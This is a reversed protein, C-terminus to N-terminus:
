CVCIFTASQMFVTLWAPVNKRINTYIRPILILKDKTDEQLKVLRSTYDLVSDENDASCPGIIVLFKDSQGSIAKKVEEDRQAKAAVCEVPLPFQEKIEAPTPLKNIFEYGM